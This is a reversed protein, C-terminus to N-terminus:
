DFECGAPFDFGRVQESFWELLQEDTPGNEPADLEVPPWDFRWDDEAPTYDTWNAM